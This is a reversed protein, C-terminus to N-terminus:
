LSCPERPKEPWGASLALRSITLSHVPGDLFYIRPYAPSEDEAVLVRVGHLNHHPQLSSPQNIWCRTLNTKM